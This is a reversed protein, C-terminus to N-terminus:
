LIENKRRWLYAALMAMGTTLDLDSLAYEQQIAVVDVCRYAVVISGEADPIIRRM